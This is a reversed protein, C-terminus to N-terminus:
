KRFFIPSPENPDTNSATSVAAGAPALAPRRTAILISFSMYLVRCSANHARRSSEIILCHLWGFIMPLETIRICLFRSCCAAAADASSLCRSCCSVSAAEASLNGGGYWGTSSGGGSIRLSARASLDKHNTISRHLERSRPNMICRPAALRKSPAQFVVLPAGLRQPSRWAVDIRHWSNWPSSYKCRLM